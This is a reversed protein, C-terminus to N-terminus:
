KHGSVQFPRDIFFSFTFVVGMCSGFLVPERQGVQPKICVRDVQTFRINWCANCRQHQGIGFGFQAVRRYCLDPPVNIMATIHQDQSLRTFRLQQIRQQLLQTYL